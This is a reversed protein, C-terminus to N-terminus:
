KVCKIKRIIILGILCIFYFNLNSTKLTDPVPIEIVEAPLEITPIEEIEIPPEEVIIKTNILEYEIEIENSEIKFYQKEENLQYGNPAKTEIFYYDGKPLYIGIYGKNDEVNELFLQYEDDQKQYIAVLYGDLIQNNEDIKKIIFKSYHENYASYSYKNTTGNIEVLYYKDDLEYNALTEVERYYYTANNLETFTVKGLDNTYECKLETKNKDYLCYKIEQLIEDTKKDKKIIELDGKPYIAKSKLQYIHTEPNVTNIIIQNSSNTQDTWYFLYNDNFREYKRELEIEMDGYKPAYLILKDNDKISVTCNKCSKVTYKDLINNQDILMTSQYIHMTEDIYIKPKINHNNVDNLIENLYSDYKNTKSGNLTNTFIFEGYPYLERWILTNTFARWQNTTRNQYGYGYYMILKVREITSTDYGLNEIAQALRNANTFSNHPQICYYVNGLTDVYGGQITAYKMYGDITNKMYMYSGADDKIYTTDLNIVRENARTTTLFLLMSIVALFIKKM